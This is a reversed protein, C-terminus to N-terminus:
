QNTLKQILFNIEKESFVQIGMKILARTTIGQGDILKSTFSGDYIKHVGCSPSNEKLLAYKVNNEKAIYSVLAAGSHFFHTVDKNQSNIVKDNQIESPNRPTKMGSMVEPCIIILDCIPFLKEIGKLYNNKGNYKTNEGLLCASILVKEM